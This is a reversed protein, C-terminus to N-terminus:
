KFTKLSFNQICKESIESKFKYFSDRERGNISVRLRMGKPEYKCFPKWSIKFKNYFLALGKMIDGIVMKLLDDDDDDDDDDNDGCAAVVQFPFHFV